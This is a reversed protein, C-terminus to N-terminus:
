CLNALMGVLSPLSNEEQKFARKVKQQWVEPGEKWILGWCFAKIYIMRGGSVKQSGFCVSAM